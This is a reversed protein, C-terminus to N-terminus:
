HHLHVCQLCEVKAITSPDHCKYRGHTLNLSADGDVLFKDFACIIQQLELTRKKPAMAYELNISPTIAIASKTQMISEEHLVLLLAVEATTAVAVMPVISVASMSVEHLTIWHSTQTGSVMFSVAEHTGITRLVM